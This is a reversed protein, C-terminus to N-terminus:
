FNTGMAIANKAIDAGVDISIIAFTWNDIAMISGNWNLGHTFDFNDTSHTFYGSASGDKRLWYSSGGNDVAFFYATADSLDVPSPFTGVGSSLTATALVSQGSDLIYVKTPAVTGNIDVTVANVTVANTTTFKLGSKGTQSEVNTDPTLGTSETAMKVLIWAIQEMFAQGMM